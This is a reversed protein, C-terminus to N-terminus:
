SRVLYRVLWALSPIAILLGGVFVTIVTPFRTTPVASPAAAPAPAPVTDVHGVNPAPAGARVRRTHRHEALIVTPEFDLDM